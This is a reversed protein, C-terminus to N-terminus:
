PWVVPMFVARSLNVPYCGPHRNSWKKRSVNLAIRGGAQRIALVEREVLADEISRAMYEYWATTYKKPEIM